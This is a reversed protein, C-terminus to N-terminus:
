SVIAHSGEGYLQERWVRSGVVRFGLGEGYLQKRWRAPKLEGFLEM